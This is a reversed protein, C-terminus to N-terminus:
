SAPSLSLYNHKDIVVSNSAMDQLGFGCHDLIVLPLLLCTGLLRPSVLAHLSSVPSEHERRAM